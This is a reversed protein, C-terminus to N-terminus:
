IFAEVLEHAPVQSLEGIHLFIRKVDGQMRAQQIIDEVIIMAHM